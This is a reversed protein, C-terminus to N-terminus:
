ANREREGLEATLAAILATLTPRMTEDNDPLGALVSEFGAVREAIQGDTLEALVTELHASTRAAVPLDATAKGPEHPGM